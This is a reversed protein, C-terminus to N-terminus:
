AADVSQPKSTSEDTSQPEKEDRDDVNGDADSSLHESTSEEIETLEENQLKTDVDDTKPSAEVDQSNNCVEGIDRNVVEQIESSEVGNDNDGEHSAGGEDDDDDAVPGSEAGDKIAASEKQDSVAKEHITADELQSTVNSIAEEQDNSDDSEEVEGENKSSDEVTSGEGAEVVNDDDAKVSSDDDAVAIDEKQEEGDEAQKQQKDEVVDDDNQGGNDVAEDGQLAELRVGLDETEKKLAVIQRERDLLAQLLEKEVREKEVGIKEMQELLYKVELAAKVEDEDYVLGLEEYEERVSDLLEEKETIKKEMKEQLVRHEHDVRALGNMLEIERRTRDDVMHSLDEKMFRILSSCNEKVLALQSEMVGLSHMARCLQAQLRIVYSSEVHNSNASRMLAAYEHVRLGGGGKVMQEFKALKQRQDLHEEKLQKISQSHEERQQKRTHSKKHLEKTLTHISDSTQHLQNTLNAIQSDREHIMEELLSSQDTMMNASTTTTKKSTHTTFNNISQFILSVLEDEQM